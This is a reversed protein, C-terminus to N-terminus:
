DDGLGFFSKMRYWFGEDQKGEIKNDFRKMIKLNPKDWTGDLKYTASTYKEIQDGVLQEGVFISAAVPPAFGALIAVFPLTSTLPFTVSLEQNLEKTNLNVTGSVAFKASPGKIELTDEITMLGNKVKAKGSVSDFHLGSQYVDSFDLRLRRGIASFNLIGFASLAGTDGADLFRGKKLSVNAQGNLLESEFMAPSAQWQFNFNVKTSDAEIVPKALWAKQVGGIDDSSLKLDLKTTQVPMPVSDSKEWHAAGKVNLKKIQGDIDLLSLTDDQVRLKAQWQGYNRPGLFIEGVKFNMDPFMSPFINAFMDTKEKKDEEETDKSLAPWHIYDLNLVIPHQAQWTILGKVIPAEVYVDWANLKANVNASVQEFQYGDYLLKDTSIDVKRILSNKPSSASRNATSSSKPQIEGWVKLWKDADIRSVHGQIELGPTSPIYAETAGLYVQGTEIEGEKLHLAVNVLESYSLTIKQGDDLAMKFNFPQSTEKRKLYPLPLDINVGVLDSNVELGTFGNEQGSIKFHGAVKTNGTLPKLLSLDLWQKLSKVELDGDFAIDTSFGKTHVDSSINLSLPKQWLSSQIASSTLGESSRYTIAGQTHSFALGIDALNLSANQLRATVDVGIDDSVDDLSISLGLETAHEGTMSWPDMINDVLKKLPTYQFYAFGDNALGKVSAQVWLKNNKVGDFVVQTQKVNGGLTNANDIRAYVEDNKVFLDGNIDSVVPWEPLYQLAAQSVSLHLESQSVSGANLGTYLYYQGTKATGTLLSRELWGRLDQSINSPVLTEHISVDANKLSLNLELKDEYQKDNYLWLKFGGKVKEAQEMTLALGDGILRVGQDNIHWDVQGEGYPFFFPSPYLDPFALSIQPGDFQVRGNKESAAIVGNLNTVGPIGGSPQTSINKLEGAVSYDLEGAENNHLIVNMNHLYGSPKLENLRSKLEEPILKVSSLFQNLYAIDMSKLYAQWRNGQKTKAIGLAIENFQWPKNKLTFQSDEVWFSWNDADNQKSWLQASVSDIKRGDNIYVTPSAVSLKGYNLLGDKFEFRLQASATFEKFVSMDFIENLWYDVDVDPLDLAGRAYFSDLKFPSGQSYLRLGANVKNENGYSVSGTILRHFGDGTMVLHDLHLIKTEDGRTNEITVNNLEVHQQLLLGDILRKILLADDEDIPAQPKKADGDIRVYLGSLRVSKFVPTFNALSSRPDLVADIAAISIKPQKPDDGTHLTVGEIHVSPTLIEMGGSLQRISVDGSLQEGLYQELNVRYQGVYPFIQQGIASYLALVIFTAVVLLNFATLWQKIAKTKM